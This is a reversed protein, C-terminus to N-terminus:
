TTTTSAATSSAKPCRGSTSIARGSRSRRRPRPCSATPSTRSLWARAEDGADPPWFLALDHAAVNRAEVEADLTIQRDPWSLTGTGTLSADKASVEFRNLVVSEFDSALEGEARAAGIPLPAILVDPLDVHGPGGTLEFRLPSREGDLKLRGTLRGTLPLDIGGLPLEPMLSAFDSPM